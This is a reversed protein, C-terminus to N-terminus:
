FKINHFYSAVSIWITNADAAGTTTAFIDANHWPYGVNLM